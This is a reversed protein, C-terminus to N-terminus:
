TVDNINIDKSKCSRHLTFFFFFTLFNRLLKLATTKAM